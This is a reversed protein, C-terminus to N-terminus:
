SLYKNLMSIQFARLDDSFYRYNLAAAALIIIQMAIGIYFLLPEEGTILSRVLLLFVLVLSGTASVFLTGVGHVTSLLHRYRGELYARVGEDQELLMSHWVHELYYYDNNRNKYLTGFTADPSFKDGLETRFKNLSDKTRISWFFVFYIQYILYGLPVGAVILSILM